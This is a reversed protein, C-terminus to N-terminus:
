QSIIICLASPVIRKELGIKDSKTEPSGLVGAADLSQGSDHHTWLKFHLAPM